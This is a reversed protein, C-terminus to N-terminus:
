WGDERVVQANGSLVLLLPPFITREFEIVSSYSHRLSVVVNVPNDEVLLIRIKELLKEELVPISSKACELSNIRQSQLNCTLAARKCQEPLISETTIRGFYKMSVFAM